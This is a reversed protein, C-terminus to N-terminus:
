CEERFLCDQKAATHNRCSPSAALQRSERQGPRCGDNAQCADHRQADSAGDAFFGDRYSHTAQSNAKAPGIPIQRTDDTPKPHRSSSRSSLQPAFETCSYAISNCYKDTETLQQTLLTQQGLGHRTAGGSTTPNPEHEPKRAIDLLFVPTAAGRFDVVAVSGCRGISQPKASPGGGGPSPPNSGSCLRWAM